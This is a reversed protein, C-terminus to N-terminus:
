SQNKIQKLSEHDIIVTVDGPFTGDPVVGCTVAFSKSKGESTLFKGTVIADHLVSPGSKEVDTITAPKRSNNAFLIKALLEAVYCNTCGYDFFMTFNKGIIFCAKFLNHRKNYGERLQKNRAPPIRPNEGDSM